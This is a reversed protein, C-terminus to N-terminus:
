NNIIIHSWKWEGLTPPVKNTSMKFNFFVRFVTKKREKKGGRRRRRRQPHPV